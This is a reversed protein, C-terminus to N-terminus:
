DSLLDSIPKQEGEKLRRIEVESVKLLDEFTQNQSSKACKLENDWPSEYTRQAGDPTHHKVLALNGYRFRLFSCLDVLYNTALSSYKQSSRFTTWGM